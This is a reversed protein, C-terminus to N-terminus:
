SVISGARKLDNILTGVVDALEDLTTANADFARDTTVNSMTYTASALEQASFSAGVPTWVLGDTGTWATTAAEASDMRAVLSGDVRVEVWYIRGDFTTTGIRGVAVPSTSDFVTAVPAIAESEVLTWSVGEDSSRFWSVNPSGGLTHVVRGIYDVGDAAPAGGTQAFTTPVANGDSTALYQLNGSTDLRVFWSRQTFDVWKGVIAQFAAGSYDDSRIKFRIDLSTTPNFVASDPTTVRHDSSGDFTFFRESPRPATLQVGNIVVRGGRPSGLWPATASNESIGDIHCGVVGPGFSFGHPTDYLLAPTVSSALGSGVVNDVLEFRYNSVQNADSVCGTLSVANDLVDKIWFGHVDNEQAICGSIYGGGTGRQVFGSGANGYAKCHTVQQGGNLIDFGSSVGDKAGAGAAVCGSLKCDSGSIEFGAEGVDFVLVTDLISGNVSGVLSVGMGGVETVIVNRVIHRPYGGAQYGPTGSRSLDIGGQTGSSSGTGVVSLNDIMVGDAVDADVTLLFGTGGTRHRLYTSRASEGMVRVSTPLEIPDMRYAGAGFYLVGGQAPIAALAANVAASDDTTGDGTAGYHRVDFVPGAVQAAQRM